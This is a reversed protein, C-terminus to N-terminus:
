KEDVAVCPRLRQRSRQRPGLRRRDSNSRVEVRDRARKPQVSVGVHREHLEDAFGPQSHGGGGGGCVCPCVCACVVVCVCSRAYASRSMTRAHRVNCNAARVASFRFTSSMRSPM